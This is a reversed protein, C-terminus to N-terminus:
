LLIVRVLNFACRLASNVAMIEREASARVISDNAGSNIQTVFACKKRGVGLVGDTGGAIKIIM